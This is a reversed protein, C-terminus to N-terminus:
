TELQGFNAARLDVIAVFVQGTIPTIYKNWPEAHIGRTIGRQNNTSLNTQVIKLEPLGLKALKAAQYLETFSGREDKHVVLKIRFLGPISTKEVKLESM